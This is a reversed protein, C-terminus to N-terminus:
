QLTGKDDCSTSQHSHHGNGLQGFFYNAGRMREIPVLAGLAHARQNREVVDVVVQVILAVVLVDDM